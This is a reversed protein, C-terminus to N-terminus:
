SFYQRFKLKQAYFPISSTEQLATAYLGHTKLVSFAAERDSAEVVGSQIEGTKSRAQDNFKM